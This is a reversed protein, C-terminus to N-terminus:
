LVEIVSIVIMSRSGFMHIYIYIHIYICIVAKHTEITTNEREREGLFYMLSFPTMCMITSNYYIDCLSMSLSRCLSICLVIHQLYTHRHTYIYIYIHIYMCMYMYVYICIYMYMYMYMYLVYVYIYICVYVRVRNM